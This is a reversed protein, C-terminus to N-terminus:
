LPERGGRGGWFAAEPICQPGRRQISARLRAGTEIWLRPGQDLTLPRSTEALKRSPDPPDPCNKNTTMSLKQEDDHVFKQEDDHVFNKNTTMFFHQEDDYVFQM